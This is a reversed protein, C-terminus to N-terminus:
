IDDISEGDENYWDVWEGGEEVQLGGVNCYDPKINQTFQFEDYRGLVDIVLKAEKLSDVPVYFPTGPVQPIWWVRKDQEAMAAEM